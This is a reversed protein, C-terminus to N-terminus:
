FFVQYLIDTRGHILLVDYKCCEISLLHVLYDQSESGGRETAMGLKIRTRLAQIAHLAAKLSFDSRDPAISFSSMSQAIKKADHSFIASRVASFNGYSRVYALRFFAASCSSVDFTNGPAVYSDSIQEWCAQWKELAHHPVLIKDKIGQYFMKRQILAHLVVYAGFPSIKATQLSPLPSLISNLADSFRVSSHLSHNMADFWAEPNAATWIDENGPLIVDSM